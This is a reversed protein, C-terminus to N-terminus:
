LNIICAVPKRDYTDREGIYTEGGRNKGVKELDMKVTTRAKGAPKKSKAAKEDKLKVSHLNEVQIKVKKLTAVNM